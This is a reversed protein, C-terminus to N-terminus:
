LFSHARYGGGQPEGQLCPSGFGRAGRPEGRSAPPVKLLPPITFEARAIPILVEIVTVVRMNRTRDLVHIVGETHERTEVQLVIPADCEPAQAAPTGTRSGVPQLVATDPVIERKAEEVYLREVIRGHYRLRVQRQLANSIYTILRHRVDNWLARDELYPDMGPFPSAMQTEQTSNYTDKCHSKFM